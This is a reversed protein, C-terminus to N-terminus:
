DRYQNGLQSLWEPWLLDLWREACEQVSLPPREILDDSLEAALQRFSKGPFGVRGWSAFGLTSGQEGIEFIKQANTYHRYGGGDAFFVTSSSDAGLVTGEHSVYCAAITM